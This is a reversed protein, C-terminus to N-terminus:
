TEFYQSRGVNVSMRLTDAFDALRRHIIKGRDCGHAEATMRFVHRDATVTQSHRHTELVLLSVDNMEVINVAKLCRYKKM